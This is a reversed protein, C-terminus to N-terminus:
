FLTNMTASDCRHNSMQKSTSDPSVLIPFVIGGRGKKEKRDEEKLKESCIRGKKKMQEHILPQFGLRQPHYLMHTRNQDERSSVQVTYLWLWHHTVKAFKCVENASGRRIEM